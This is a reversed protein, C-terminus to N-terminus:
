WGVVWLDGPKSTLIRKDLFGNAAKVFGDQFHKPGLNTHSGDTHVQMLEGKDALRM